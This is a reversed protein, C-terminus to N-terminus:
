YITRMTPANMKIASDVFVRQKDSQALKSPTKQSQAEPQEAM